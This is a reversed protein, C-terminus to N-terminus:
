MEFPTGKFFATLRNRPVWIYELMIVTYQTGRLSQHRIGIRDFKQESLLEIVREENEHIYVTITHIPNREAQEVLFNVLMEEVGKERCFETVTFLFINLSGGQQVYFFFGIPSGQYQAVIGGANEPLICTLDSPCLHTGFNHNFIAAIEAADNNLNIRAIVVGELTVKRKQNM